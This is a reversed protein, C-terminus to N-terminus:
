TPDARMELLAQIMKINGKAVAGLLPREECHGNIRAGHALLLSIAPKPDATWGEAVDLFINTSARAKYTQLCNKLMNLDGKRTARSAIERVIYSRYDGPLENLDGRSFERLAKKIEGM